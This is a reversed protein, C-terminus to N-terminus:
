EALWALFRWELSDSGDPSSLPLDYVEKAALDFSPRDEACLRVLFATFKEHSGALSGDVATRDLWDLFCSLYSRFFERYENLYQDPPYPKLRGLDGLFPASVYEKSGSEGELEFHPLENRALPNDKDKKARKAGAGQGARLAKKFYGEGNGKRWHNEVIANFPAAPIPPLWGGNPNGGPVFREYPATSAGTSSIAGEGDVTNARGCVAIATNLSLGKELIALDTRNLSTMVLARAAQVVFHQRLGDKEFKDMPLGTRYKPDAEWPAYEGAIVVTRDIWFFTWQDVGDHWLEKKKEEFGLGAYGVFEMFDRRSPSFLLRIREIHRPHLLVQDDALLRRRAMDATERIAPEAELLLMLDGGEGRAAASLKSKNLDAIWERLRTFDSVLDATAAEGTRYAEAWHLQLDILAQALAPFEMARKEGLEELPFALEFVGVQLTAYHRAVLADIPFSQATADEPGLRELLSQGLEEFTLKDPLAPPPAGLAPGALILAALLRAPTPLTRM